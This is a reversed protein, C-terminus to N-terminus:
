LMELLNTALRTGQWVANKMDGQNGAYLMCIIPEIKHIDSCLISECTSTTRPKELQNQWKKKYATKQGAQLKYQDMTDWIRNQGLVTYEVHNCTLM